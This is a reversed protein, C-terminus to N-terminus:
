MVAPVGNSGSCGRSYKVSALTSRVHSVIEDPAIPKRLFGALGASMLRDLKDQQVFGTCLVIPLDPRIERVRNFTEEGNMFPMTLDLLILHYGHPCQRVLDLCEFGSQATTVQFGAESLVRKVLMLAMEEDDVILISQKTSSPTSTNKPQKVFGAFDPHMAMKKNTGGAQEVLDAAVKEAREISTRLMALYKESGDSGEWVNEILSSTGSIIQLLNNLESSAKSLPSEASPKHSEPDTPLSM